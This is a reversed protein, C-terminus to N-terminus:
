DHAKYTGHMSVMAEIISVVNKEYLENLSTEKKSIYEIASGSNLYDILEHANFWHFYNYICNDYMKFFVDADREDFFYNHSMYEQVAERTEFGELPEYLANLIIATYTPEPTTVPIAVASYINEIVGYAYGPEVDPGHPWSLIGFDYVEQAVIADRGYIYGTYVAGMLADENCFAKAIEDHNYGSTHRAIYDKCTVNYFQICRDMAKMGRDDYLSFYPNGEADLTVTASGNSYMYMESIIRSNGLFGYHKIEAGETIYASAVVEEFKDWTWVKNEVYERPDAIGYASFLNGNFVIPYGFNIHTLEPWAAPVLGYLDDKYYMTELFPGKGWKFSDEVDIIDSLDRMGVYTGLRCNDGIMDSIGSIIDAVYAGSLIPAEVYDHVGSRVEIELECNFNKELDKVRKMAADALTTEYAYGLFSDNSATVAWNMVPDFLYKFKRGEFNIGDSKGMEVFDVDFTEESSQQSCSIMSFLLVVCLCLSIIKRIKM